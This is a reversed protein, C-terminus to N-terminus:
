KNCAFAFGAFKPTEKKFLIDLIELYQIDKCETKDKRNKDIRVGFTNFKCLSYCVITEENKDIYCVVGSKFRLKQAVKATNAIKAYVATFLVNYDLESM